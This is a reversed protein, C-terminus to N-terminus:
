YICIYLMSMPVTSGGIKRLSKVANALAALGTTTRDDCGAVLMGVCITPQPFPRRTMSQCCPCKSTPRMLCLERSRMHFKPTPLPGSEQMFMSMSM